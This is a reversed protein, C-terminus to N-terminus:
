KQAIGLSARRARGRHGRVARAHARGADHDSGVGGAHLVLQMGGAEDFFREIVLTRETPIVGLAARAGALYEVM